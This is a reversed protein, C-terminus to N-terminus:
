KPWRRMEEQADRLLITGACVARHLRNEERDKVHADHRKQPWLNGFVDAGGIERPVLHDIVYGHRDSVPIHYADFVKRRLAADVHREDTSWRTNCVELTTLPRVVGPTLQQNPALLLLLLFVM